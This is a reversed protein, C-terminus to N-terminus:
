SSSIFEVRYNTARDGPNVLAVSVHVPRKSPMLQGGAMEGSLYEEPKFARDAVRTGNIDTFIIVVEPFPQDFGAQNVLIADIIIADRNEPHRRRIVNGAKIQTVDIQPPLSCGLSSCVIEYYPRWQDQRALDQMNFWAYQGFLGLLCIVSLVAWGWPNSPKEEESAFDIELPEPEIQESLKSQIAQTQSEDLKTKKSNFVSESPQEENSIALTDQTFKKLNPKGDQEIEEIMNLAWSEDSTNEDVSDHKPAPSEYEKKIEYSTGSGLNKLEDSLEGMGFEDDEEDEFVDDDPDDEFVFDDEDDIVVGTDEPGDSFLFESDEDSDAAFDPVDEQHSFQPRREPEKSFEQKNVLASNQMAATQQNIAQSNDQVLHNRASFVRLCAGCRVSGNAANLHADTVKFTTGCHPCQTVYAQTMAVQRNIM